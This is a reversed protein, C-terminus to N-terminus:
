LTKEHVVEYKPGSPTLTSNMLLIRDVRVPIAVKEDLLGGVAEDPKGKLRALTVHPSLEGEGIIRHINLLSEVPECGVWVVRIHGANPFAGVRNFVLEFPKEVIKDMRKAWEAPESEGIFRMTMHLNEKEVIRMKASSKELKRQLAMIKEKAVEGLPIAIFLRM